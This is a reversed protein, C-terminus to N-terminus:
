LIMDGKELDAAFDFSLRDSVEETCLMRLPNIGGSRFEEFFTSSSPSREPLKSSLIILLFFFSFSMSFTAAWRHLLKGQSRTPALLRCSDSPQPFCRCPQSQSATKRLNLQAVQNM